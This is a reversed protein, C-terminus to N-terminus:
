QATPSSAAWRRTGVFFEEQQYRRYSSLNRVIWWTLARVEKGMPLPELIALKLGESWGQLKKELM